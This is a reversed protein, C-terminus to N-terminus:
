TIKGRAFREIATVCANLGVALIMAFLVYAFMDAMDMSDSYFVIAHGIGALSAITEGGLIALLALILGLRAGGIVVPLAAPLLVAAFLRWNSAGMSRAARVLSPDVDGFGAIVTLAIPFFAISAGLAIKSGSGVGFFLVFLPFFLIAPISYLSSFLPDFVKISFRSRSVLYGIALGAIAALAFAIALEFSTVALDPWFAGSRLLRAFDDMTQTFSPLLLPNARGTASAWYWLAACALVFAIQALRSLIAEGNM